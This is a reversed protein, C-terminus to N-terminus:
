IPIPKERLSTNTLRSSEPCPSRSTASRISPSALRPINFVNASELTWGFFCDTIMFTVPTKLSQIAQEFHPKMLETSSIFSYFLSLSPLKDVSEIGSPIGPINDPFPLTVITTPTDPLSASVYQHNAPTTFLTVTANRRLVFLRRALQLFPITHGKAMFPFLVIHLPPQPTSAMPTSSLSFFFTKTTNQRM